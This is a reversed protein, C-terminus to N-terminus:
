KAIEDGFSLGLEKNARDKEGERMENRLPNRWLQRCSAPLVQGLLLAEGREVLESQGVSQTVSVFRRVSRAQLRSDGTRNAQIESHLDQRRGGVGM